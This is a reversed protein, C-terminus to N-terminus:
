KLVLATLQVAGAAGFETAANGPPGGGVRYPLLPAPIIRPGPLKLQSIEMTFVVWIVSRCVTIKRVSNKLM